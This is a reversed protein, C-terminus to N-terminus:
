ENWFEDYVTKTCYDCVAIETTKAKTLVYSLELIGGARQCKPLDLWVKNGCCDCILYKRIKKVPRYLGEELVVEKYVPVKGRAIFKTINEKIM